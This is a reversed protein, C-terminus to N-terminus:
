FNKRLSKELKPNSTEFLKKFKRIPTCQYLQTISHMEAFPSRQLRWVSRSILIEVGSEHVVWAGTGVWHTQSIKVLKLSSGHNPWIAVVTYYPANKRIEWTTGM